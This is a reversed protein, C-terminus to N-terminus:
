RSLKRRWAAVGLLALGLLSITAGGDPVAVVTPGAQVSRDAKVPQAFSFAMVVALALLFKWSTMGSKAASIIGNDARPQAVVSEYSFKYFRLPFRCEGLRM